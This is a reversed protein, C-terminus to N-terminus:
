FFLNLPANFPPILPLHSSLCYEKFLFIRCAVVVYCTVASM